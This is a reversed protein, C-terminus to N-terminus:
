LVARRVVEVLHEGGGVREAVAEGPDDEVLHGVVREVGEIL